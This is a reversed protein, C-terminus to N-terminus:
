EILGAKEAVADLTAWIRDQADRPLWGTPERWKKEEEATLPEIM